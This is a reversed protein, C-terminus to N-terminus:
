ADSVEDDEGLPDDDFSDTLEEFDDPHHTVRAVCSGVREDERAHGWRKGRRAWGQRKSHVPSILCLVAQMEPKEDDKADGTKSESLHRIIPLRRM